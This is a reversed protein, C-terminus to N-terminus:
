EIMPYRGRASCSRSSVIGWIMARSRSSATSATSRTGTQGNQQRDTPSACRAISAAPNAVIETVVIGAIVADTEGGRSTPM